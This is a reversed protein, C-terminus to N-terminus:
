GVASDRMHRVHEYGICEQKNQIKKMQFVVKNHGEMIGHKNALASDDMKIDEMAKYLKMYTHAKRSCGCIKNISLVGVSTSKDVLIKFKAKTRKDSIPAKRYHLKAIAWAYKIGKGALEPHCKPTRDITVGM